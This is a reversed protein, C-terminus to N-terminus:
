GPSSIRIPDRDTSWNAETTADKARAKKKRATAPAKTGLM